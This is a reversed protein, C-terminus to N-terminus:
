PTTGPPIKRAKAKADAELRRAEGKKYETEIEQRLASPLESYSCPASLSKPDDGLETWLSYGGGFTLELKIIQAVGYQYSAVPSREGDFQTDRYGSLRGFTSASDTSSIGVKHNVRIMNEARPLGRIVTGAPLGNPLGEHPFRKINRISLSDIPADFPSMFNHAFARPIGYVFEDLWRRATPNLDTLRLTGGTRLSDRQEQTLAGWVRLLTRYYVNGLGGGTSTGSEDCLTAYTSDLGGLDLCLDGPQAVAYRGLQDITSHGAAYTDAALRGMIDRTLREETAKVPDLPMLQLWKGDREANMNSYARALQEVIDKAEPQRWKTMPVWGLLEDSLNAVLNVQMAKACEDLAPGVIFAMPERLNPRSFIPAWKKILQPLNSADGLDGGYRYSRFVLIKEFEKAEDSLAIVKKPVEIQNPLTSTATTLSDGASAINWGKQDVASLSVQVYAIGYRRMSVVFRTAPGNATSVNLRPDLYTLPAFLETNRELEFAFQRQEENFDQLIEQAAGPLAREMQTPQTAFVVNSDKGIAAIEAPNMSALIRRLARGAPATRGSDILANYAENHTQKDASHEKEALTSMNTVIGTLYQRTWPVVENLKSKVDAEIVKATMDLRDKALSKSMPAPRELVWEDRRKSWQAAMVKAIRAKVDEWSAEQARIMLIEQRLAQSCVWHEGVQASIQALAKDAPLPGVNFAYTPRLLLVALFSAIVNLNRAVMPTRVRDEGDEHRWLGATSANKGALSRMRPLVRLSTLLTVWGCPSSQIM